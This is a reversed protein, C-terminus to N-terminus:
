VTESCFDDPSHWRAPARRGSWNPSHRPSRAGPRRRWRCRSRLRVSSRFQRSCSTSSRPAPSPQSGSGGPTVSPTPPTASTASSHSCRTSPSRGAFIMLLTRPRVRALRELPVDDAGTREHIEDRLRDLLDRERKISKGLSRSLALPQLLPLCAAVEDGGLEEVGLAVSRTPGVALGIAVLLEAVDRSRARRDTALEADDYDVLWVRRSHDLLMNDLTLNHHATRTEHTSRVAEFVASIVDDDLNDSDLESLRRGTVLEEVLFAAGDATVGVAIVQPTQTGGDRVTRTALAEHEVRRKLTSYPRGVESSRLRVARHLRTLLDLSRDDPTRLKVFTQSGDREETEYVAQTTTDERRRIEIPDLGVERLATLVQAPSPELNPSGFLLRVLSGILVGLSLAIWVDLPPQSPGLVRLLVLLGVWSWAARKWRRPLYAAGVSVTAAASALYETTPFNAAVLTTGDLSREALARTVDRDGLWAILIAIAISAVMAAFWLTLVLRWRRKWLAFVIAVLPVFTAIIQATGLVAQEVHDPIRDIADVFDSELGSITGGAFAAAFLGVALFGVAILLRLLDGASWKLHSPAPTFLKVPAVEPAIKV